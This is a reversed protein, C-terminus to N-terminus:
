DLLHADAIGAQEVRQLADRRARRGVLLLRQEAARGLADVPERDVLGRDGTRSGNRGNEFPTKSPRHMFLGSVSCKVGTAALWLRVFVSRFRRLFPPMVFM